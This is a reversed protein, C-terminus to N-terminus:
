KPVDREAIRADVWKLAEVEQPSQKMWYASKPATLIRRMEDLDMPCDHRELWKLMDLPGRTMVDIAFKPKLKVGVELMKRLVYPRFGMTTANNFAEDDNVTIKRERLFDFVKGNNCKFAQAALMPSIEMKLEDFLYKLIEDKGRELSRILADGNIPCGNRVLWKVVGLNSREAALATVKADWAIGKSRLESLLPIVERDWGATIANLMSTLDIPCHLEEELYRRFATDHASIAAAYYRPDMKLGLKVAYKFTEFNKTYIAGAWRITPDKTCATLVDIGNAQWWELVRIYGRQAAYDIGSGIPEPTFPVSRDKAWQLIEVSNKTAAVFYISSAIPTAGLAVIRDMMEIRGSNACEMLVTPMVRLGEAKRLVYDFMQDNGSRAAKHLLLHDSKDITYGRDCLFELLEMNNVEATTAVVFATIPAGMELLLVVSEKKGSRVASVLAREGAKIKRSQLYRLVLLNGAGAAALVANEDLKSPAPGEQDWLVLELSGRSGCFDVVPNTSFYFRDTLLARLRRNVFGMVFLTSNEVHKSLLEEFLLEEPLQELPSLGSM